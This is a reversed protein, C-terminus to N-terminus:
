PAPRPDAIHIAAYGTHTADHGTVGCSSPAIIDDGTVRCGLVGCYLRWVPHNFTSPIHRNTPRTLSAYGSVHYEIAVVPM